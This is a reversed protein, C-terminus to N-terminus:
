HDRARPECCAVGVGRACAHGLGVLAGDRLQKASLNFHMKLNPSFAKRWAQTQACAHFLLRKGMGVILGSEEAIAIFDAPSLLGRAPHNWRALAEFGEVAGTELNLIPQYRLLFEDAQLAKRLDTKLSMTELSSSYMSPEFIAYTSKGKDKVVYMALDANRVLETATQTASEAVCIGISASVYIEDDGVQVPADLVAHIRDAVRKAGVETTEELLVAFEDGGLRAATDISRLTSQLREAVRQLLQDGVEHGLSDNIGKFNDLDIFLLGSPSRNRAMRQLALGVRDILLLRNAQGTLPDHLAQTALREELAKRETVDRFNVVIGNVNPDDLLNTARCDVWRWDGSAGRTTLEVL